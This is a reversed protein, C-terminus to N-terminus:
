LSHAEKEGGEEEEGGGEKEKEPCVERVAKGVM